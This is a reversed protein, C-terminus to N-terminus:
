PLLVYVGAKHEKVKWVPDTFVRFSCFMEPSVQGKCQEVFGKDLSLRVDEIENTKEITNLYSYREKGSQDYILTRIHVPYLHSPRKVRFNLEDQELVLEGGSSLWIGRDKMVGESGLPLSLPVQPKGREAWRFAPSRPATSIQYVTGSLLLICFVLLSMKAYRGYLKSRTQKQMCLWAMVLGAFSSVSYFILHIGIWFSSLLAIAMGFIALDVIPILRSHSSAVLVSTTKRLFSVLLLLLLLLGALGWESILMPYLEPPDAFFKGGGAIAWSQHEFLNMYFSGLGTGKWPHELFAKIMAKIHVARVLDVRILLSDLYIPNTLQSTDLNQFHSFSQSMSPPAYKLLFFGVLTLSFLLMGCQLLRLALKRSNTMFRFLLIGLLLVVSVFFAVFFARGASMVGAGVPLLLFVFCILRKKLTLNALLFVALLASALCAFYVASAGGDELFGTARLAGVASGTGSALLSMDGLGQMLALICNPVLILLLSMIFIFIFKSDAHKIQRLFIISPLLFLVLNRLYLKAAAFSYNASVSDSLLYDQMPVGWRMSPWYLHAISHLLIAAFISLIIFVLKPTTRLLALVALTATLYLSSPILYRSLHILPKLIKISELLFPLRTALGNLVLNFCFLYSVIRNLQNM